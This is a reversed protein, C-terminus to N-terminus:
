AGEESAPGTISDFFGVVADKVGSLFNGITDFLEKNDEMFKKGKDILGKTANVLIGGLLLGGFAFLKNFISLPSKAM